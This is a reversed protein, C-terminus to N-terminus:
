MLWKILDWFSWHGGLKTGNEWGHYHPFKLKAGGHRFDKDFWANGKSDFFRYQKVGADDIVSYRSFPKGTIGAKNGTVNAYNMYMNGAITGIGSVINLGIHFGSYLGDNMGTWSQIYNVGTAGAVIENIGFAITGAGILLLAGGAIWGIPGFGLLGIGTYIANGGNLTSSIGGAIQSGLLESVGWCILSGIALSILFTSITFHGTPDVNNVPDNACYAYLNLGHFQEPDAYSIDDMNLFRGIEPDYYRTQLYYLGTEVDYFYGRYRFPNRNGIHSSDTLDDTAIWCRTTGGHTTYTNYWIIIVVDLCLYFIVFAFSCESQESREQQKM